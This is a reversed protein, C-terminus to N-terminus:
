LAIFMYVISAILFGNLLAGIIGPILLGKPGQTKVRILAFVAALLGFLLLGWDIAVLIATTAGGVEIRFGTMGALLVSVFPAIVSARACQVVLLTKDPVAPQPADIAIPRAPPESGRQGPKPFVFGCYCFDADAPEARNCRPCIQAGEPM